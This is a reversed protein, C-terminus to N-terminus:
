LAIRLKKMDRPHYIPLLTWQSKLGYETLYRYHNSCADKAAGPWFFRRSLISYTADRGPHGTIYSDHVRQIVGTRLPENEPIWIRNRFCLLEQENLQCESLSIKVQSEAAIRREGDKLAQSITQYVKDTKRSTEWLAQLSREEFLPVPTEFDLLRDNQIRGTNVNIKEFMFRCRNSLREDANGQPTDQSRRSLADPRTALKGPRYQLDFDFESLLDSWRMQRENLHRAKAFYRLNQHDTLIKFKPVMKLEPRWERLARIIALLEKDHIEYNVESPNLKQSLYACPRLTGDEYVQSLVAGTAWGSADAEVITERGEEFHALVPANIFMEKLETFARQCADNWTFIAEKRTLEILPKAHDAFRPIFSRYFNAFGIFSRVDKVSKPVEWSRIADVKKPYVCVGQGARIIFGLYKVSECEFESKTIDCQLGAERLKGLVESVKRRHDALSDSSYIIIDDVYASVFDDLHEQLVQNIYRQFTAPAGTLGFPTVNWEYLGYRTRFATKWEEGPQMRIKHFAAIIDLKTFWRASAMNRLTEKILPLPYRDKITLENLGRYDVCFRIGGGPKRVLLVPSAAPSKSVRIFNKDLLETLTKRLVLLEERNMGYLPGYPPPVENGSADKQLPVRHDIGARHPPLQDALQQSFVDLWPWYQKPLRTKPDVPDKTRLAKEIDALTVKGIRLREPQTENDILQYLQPASIKTVRLPKIGPPAISANARNWCRTLRDKKDRIDLYGKAPSYVGKVEVLWPNGLIMADIQGYIVYAYVRGQEHSHIDADFYTVYEIRGQNGVVGDLTRTPIRIRPLNFSQVLSDSITAYCLCGSDVLAQTSQLGNLQVDVKFPKNEQKFLKKVGNREQKRALGSTHKSRHSRPYYPANAFIADTEEAVFADVREGGSSLNTRPPGNQENDRTTTRTPTWDMPDYVVSSTPRGKQPRNIDLADRDTSIEHLRSILGMFTAPIGRNMLSDTMTRNLSGLLIQRKAEDHWELAGADAFEKELQPLFKSFPQDDRQRIQHLRRAARAQSNPDGYIQELHDLLEKATGDNRRLKVYTGTNKWALKELRSFVYVFQDQDNGIAPGDVYLKNEMTIRWSPWETTSGAFLAPDPLRARPPYTGVRAQQDPRKTHVATESATRQHTTAPESPAITSRLLAELREIREDQAQIVSEQKAHNQAIQQMLSQAWNPPSSSENGGAM